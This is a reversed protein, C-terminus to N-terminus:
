ESPSTLGLFLQLTEEGLSSIFEIWDGDASPDALEFNSFEAQWAQNAYWGGFLAMGLVLIFFLRIIHRNNRVM